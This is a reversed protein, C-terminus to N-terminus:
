ARKSRWKFPGTRRGELNLYIKLVRDKKKSKILMLVIEEKKKVSSSALPHLCQLLLLSFLTSSTNGAKDSGPSLPLTSLSTPSPTTQTIPTPTPTKYQLFTPSRAHTRTLLQYVRRPSSLSPSTCIDDYNEEEEEEEEADYEDTEVAERGDEEDGDVAMTSELESAGDEEEKVREQEENQMM